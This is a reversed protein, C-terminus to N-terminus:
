YEFMLDRLRCMGPCVKWIDFNETDVGVIYEKEKKIAVKLDAVTESKGINIPFAANSKRLIWCFLKFKEDSQSLDSLNSDISWTSAITADNVPATLDQVVFKIVELSHGLSDYFGQLEQDNALSIVNKEIDIFAVGVHGQPINFLRTIESALVGWSPNEFFDVHRTSADAKKLKFRVPTM